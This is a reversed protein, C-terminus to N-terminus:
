CIANVQAQLDLTSDLQKPNPATHEKRATHIGQQTFQPLSYKITQLYHDFM